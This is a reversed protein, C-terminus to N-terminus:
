IIRFCRLVKCTKQFIRPQWGGINLLEDCVPKVSANRAKPDSLYLALLGNLVTLSFLPDQLGPIYDVCRRFIRGLREKQERMGSYYSVFNLDGERQDEDIDILYDLLIHFGCIWPFYAQEIRDLEEKDIQPYSACSFLAFVFLTSGSAAAFEWWDLDPWQSLYPEAWRILSEERYEIERHKYAQLDCYLGTIDIVKDQVKSFSPLESICSCCLEVLRNLYGGDNKLPFYKYYDHVPGSLSVVDLMALHLQRFVGEDFVGARDCLNDLYDSITQFAVILKLVQDRKSKQSSITYVSGGLAHFRKYILSRCALDALKLDECSYLWKQFLNLERHVAPIIQCTFTSVVKLQKLFGGIGSM